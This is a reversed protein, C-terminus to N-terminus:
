RWTDIGGAGATIEVVQRHLDDRAVAYMISMADHAVRVSALRQNARDLAGREPACFLTIQEETQLERQEANKGNIAREAPDRALDALLVQSKKSEFASLAQDRGRQALMIRMKCRVLRRAALRYAEQATDTVAM